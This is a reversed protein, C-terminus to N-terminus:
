WNRGKWDTVVKWWWGRKGKGQDFSMWAQVLTDIILLLSSHLVKPVLIDHSSPFIWKSISFTSVLSLDMYIYKICTVSPREKTWSATRKSGSENPFSLAFQSEFSPVLKEEKQFSWQLCPHPHFMNYFSCSWTSPGLGTVSGNPVKFCREGGIVREDLERPWNLAVSKCCNNCSTNM